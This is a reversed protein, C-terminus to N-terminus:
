TITDCWWAIPVNLNVETGAGVTSRL